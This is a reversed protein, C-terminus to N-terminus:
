SDQESLLSHTSTYIRVDLSLQSENHYITTKSLFHKDSPWVDNETLSVGDLHIQVREAQWLGCVHGRGITSSGVAGKPGM